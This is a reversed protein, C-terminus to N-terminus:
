AVASAAGSPGCDDSGRGHCRRRCPWTQQRDADVWAPVWLPEFRREVRGAGHVLGGGDWAKERLVVGRNSSLRLAHAVV